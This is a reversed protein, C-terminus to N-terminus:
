KKELVMACRDCLGDEHESDTYNWCRPCVHGKAHEVAIQSVKYPKLEEDTFEAKSVM